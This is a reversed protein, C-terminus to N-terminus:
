AAVEARTKALAVCYPDNPSPDNVMLRAFTKNHQNAKRLADLEDQCEVVDDPGLIHMVWESSKSGEGQVEWDEALVDNVSPVWTSVTENVNKIALYANYPVLKGFFHSKATETSPPYSNAPVMYVFMGKGNWGARAVAKGAKLAEIAQGFNLPGGASTYGSEFPGAPSYATYDDANECYHVFYGGVALKPNAALWTASVTVASGGELRLDLGNGHHRNEVELIKAARVKKHCQYLPLEPIQM